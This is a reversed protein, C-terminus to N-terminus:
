GEKRKFPAFKELVKLVLGLFPIEYLKAWWADDEKGPTMKVYMGGLIVLSGLGMLVYTVVAPAYLRILEVISETM